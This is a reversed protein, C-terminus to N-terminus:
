KEIKKRLSELEFPHAQGHRGPKRPNKTTIFFLSAVLSMGSIAYLYHSATFSIILLSFSNLFFYIPEKGAVYERRHFLYFGSIISIVGMLCGFANWFLEDPQIVRNALVVTTVLFWGLRPAGGWRRFHLMGFLIIAFILIASSAFMLLWRWDFSLISQYIAQKESDPLEQGQPLDVGLVIQPLLFCLAFFVTKILISYQIIFDQKKKM